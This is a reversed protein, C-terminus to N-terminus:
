KAVKLQKLQKTRKNQVQPHVFSWGAAANMLKHLINWKESFLQNDHLNNKMQKIKLSNNFRCSM